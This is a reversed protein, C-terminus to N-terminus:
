QVILALTLNHTSGGSTGSITLTYTGPPTPRTHYGPHGGGNRTVM